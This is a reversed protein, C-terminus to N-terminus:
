LAVGMRCVYGHSEWRNQREQVLVSLRIDLGHAKSIRALVRQLRRTCAAIRQRVQSTRDALVEDLPSPIKYKIGQTAIKRVWRLIYEATWEMVALLSGHGVPSNPGNFM